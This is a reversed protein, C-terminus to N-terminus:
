NWDAARLQDLMSRKEDELKAEDIEFFAALERRLCFSRNRKTSTVRFGRMALWEVFEGCCQSKESIKKLKEHEPFM